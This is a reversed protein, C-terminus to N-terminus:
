RTEGREDTPGVGTWGGGLAGVLDVVAQLRALRVVSNRQWPPTQAVTQGVLEAAQPWVVGETPYERSPERQHM